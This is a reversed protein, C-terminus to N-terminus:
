QKLANSSEWEILSREFKMAIEMLYSKNMCGKRRVIYISNSNRIYTRNDGYEITVGKYRLYNDEVRLVTTLTYFNEKTLLSKNCAVDLYHVVNTFKPASKEKM